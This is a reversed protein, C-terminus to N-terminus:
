NGGTAATTTAAAFRNSFLQDTMTMDISYTVLKNTIQQNSPFVEVIGSLRSLRTVYTAVDDMSHVVGTVTITGIHAHGSTDLVASSDAGSTAPQASAVAVEVDVKTIDRPAPSRQMIATALKPLDVDTSLLGGLQSKIQASEAQLQVVGSYKRQQAQFQATQDQAARLDSSASRAQWFAYGYGGIALLVVLALAAVVLKRLVRVRRAAIIEPPLLNAIIGWGPMTNWLQSSSHAKAPAKMLDTM